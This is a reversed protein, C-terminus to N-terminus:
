PNGVPEADAESCEADRWGESFPDPGIETMSITIDVRKNEEDFELHSVHVNSLHKFQRIKELSLELLTRSFSEGEALLIQRRVQRDRTSHNGRFEICRVKYARLRPDEDVGVIFDVIERGNADIRGTFVPMRVIAPSKQGVKRYAATVIDEIRQSLHEDTFGAADPDSRLFAKLSQEKRESEDVESSEDEEIGTGDQTPASQDEDEVYILCNTLVIPRGTESTLKKVVEDGPVFNFGLPRFKGIVTRRLVDVQVVARTEDGVVITTVLRASAKLFGKSCLFERLKRCDVELAEEDYDGKFEGRLSAQFGPLQAALEEETLGGFGTLQSEFFIKRIPPEKQEIVPQAPIGQAPPEMSQGLVSGVLLLLGVIPLLFKM